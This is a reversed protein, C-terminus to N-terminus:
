GPREWRLRTRGSRSKRRHSSTPPSRCDRVRVGIAHYVANAISAQVGVAVVEGLGKADLPHADYDPEEVFSVDIQGVDANVPVHYDTLAPAIFRGTVPDAALDEM